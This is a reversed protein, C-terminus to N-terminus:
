KNNIKKLPELGVLTKDELFELMAGGGTSIFDFSNSKKMEFALDIVSGGGLVGIVMRKKAQSAVFRMMLKSGNKFEEVNTDGFVGSCVVTKKGLLENAILKVTESGVDVIMEGSSCIEKGWSLKHYRKKTKTKTDTIVVDVPLIINKKNLRKVKTVFSKDMVSDGIKYGNSYLFTNAIGGGVVVKSYKKVFSNLVAFKSAVKVGGILAIAPKKPKAVKLLYSVEDILNLGAYSPLYKTIGVISAAERHSVAFAENVYIDAMSALMEAFKPDNKKESPNYRLNDLMILKSNDESLKDLLRLSIKGPYFKVAIPKMLKRFEKVIPEMSYKKSVKGAPRGYHAGVIVQCDNKLLYKITALSQKLRFNEIVEEGEIDVNYDVRVFVKQGKLNKVTKISRLKMYRRINHNVQSKNVQYNYCL